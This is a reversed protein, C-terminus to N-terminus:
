FPGNIVTGPHPNQASAVSDAAVTFTGVSFDGLLTLQVTPGGGAQDSVTLVGQTHAANEVFQVTTIGQVFAVDGLDIVDQYGPTAALTGTFSQAVDLKLTSQYGFSINADAAAALELSSSSGITVTLHNALVSSVVLMGTGQVGLVGTGTLQASFTNGSSSDFILAGNDVIAGTAAGGDAVDVEAGGAITANHVTGLVNGNAGNNLTLNNAVGGAFVYEMGGNNATTGNTVAGSRVWETGGNLITGNAVGGGIVTMSGGAFITTNNATGGGAVYIIDGNITTNTIVGGQDVNIYGNNLILGIGTGFIELDGETTGQEDVTTGIAQGGAEVTEDGGLILSGNDTGGALVLLYGGPLVTVGTVTQGASVVLTQGAGVVIGPATTTTLTAASTTAQGASNTFVARYQNGNQGAAATFSYTTATAGPINAFAGGTSVQWQVTPTPSGSAGATFSVTSGIAVTQSQPNLTITPAVVPANVTLTAASTTASGASSTFVARYQNGNQGAAATFSYTTATAGPINAFAGGTSLQWQVTPTPTGSAAATLTVTSGATVTQSQPNLTIAPAVAPANVTLTAASTTASGASNTFVARYEVGSQSTTTSTVTFTTATAGAINGWTAGGNTSVQWQMTPTPAGSAAATFTATQGATVTQNAPQTTISPATAAGTSYTVLLRPRSSVTANEATLVNVMRGANTVLLIGQNAAPNAIWSQVVSPDLNITFTQRGSANTTPLTFSRGAVLDTGQGLAGPTAWNLGNGRHVWGITGDATSWANHVYYGTVATNGVWDVINVTLTAASVVANSPIGLNSFRLLSEFVDGQGDTGIGLYPQNVYPAGNGGNYIGYQTTIGADQGGTYGAVGQQFTVTTTGSPASVTLTAAGTTASGASNTFVARYESGSQGTTTNTVTFTTATAGAINGWTAGGNTSVQWQVTPTPAGSAAATFTATQGATVTQNAPQSTISPATVAANVTLTAASTTASGASNTFVARYEAGSQGTTTSTVTFTTATAGAINGWTAGGNTSVQWQM